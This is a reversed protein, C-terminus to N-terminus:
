EIEAAHRKIMLKAVYWFLAVYNVPLVITCKVLFLQYASLSEATKGRQYIM